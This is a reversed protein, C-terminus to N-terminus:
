RPSEHLAGPLERRSRVGLKHYVRALHCEVTRVSINLRASIRANSLGAAALEAIQSERATLDNPTPLPLDFADRLRQALDADVLRVAAFARALLEPDATTRPSM